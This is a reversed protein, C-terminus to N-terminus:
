KKRRFRMKEQATMKETAYQIILRAADNKWRLLFIETETRRIKWAERLFWGCGQHVERAPDIMLPEIMNFFTDYNETTKLSKIFTVPVCRRQFKNDARRWRRLDKMTLLRAKFLKSLIYMGLTDAQAWNTIGLKFWSEIATVTSTTFEESLENVLLMAICGEEYKGSKIFTPAAKLLTGLTVGPTKLMQKVKDRIQQTSLGYADFSERFYRSSKKVNAPSANARCYDRIDIVLQKPKMNGREITDYTKKDKTTM